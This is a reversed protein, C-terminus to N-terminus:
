GAFSPSRVVRTIGMIASEDGIHDALHPRTMRLPTGRRLFTRTLHESRREGGEVAAAARFWSRLDLATRAGFVLAVMGRFSPTPYDAAHRGAKGRPPVPAYLALCYEGGHQAECEALAPELRRQWDAAFLADDEFMLVPNYGDAVSLARIKNDLAREIPITSTPAAVNIISRPVDGLYTADEGDVWVNVVTDTSGALFSGLCLQAYPRECTMMTARLPM